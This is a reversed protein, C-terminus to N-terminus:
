RTGRQRETMVDALPSACLAVVLWQQCFASWALSTYNWVALSRYAYMTADVRDMGLAQEAFRRQDEASPTWSMAARQQAIAGALLSVEPEKSRTM